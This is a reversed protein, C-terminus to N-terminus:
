KEPFETKLVDKLVKQCAEVIEISMDQYAKALDNSCGANHLLNQRIQELEQLKSEILQSMKRRILTVSERLEPM